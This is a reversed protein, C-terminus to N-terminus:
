RHIATLEWVKKSPNPQFLVREFARMNWRKKFMQWGFSACIYEFEEAPPQGGRLCTNLREQQTELNLSNFYHGFEIDIGPHKRSM